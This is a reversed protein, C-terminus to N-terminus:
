WKSGIYWSSKKAHLISGQFYVFHKMTNCVQLELVIPIPSLWVTMLKPVAQVTYHSKGWNGERDFQVFHKNEQFKKNRSELPTESGAMASLFAM